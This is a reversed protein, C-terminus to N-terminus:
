MTKSIESQLYVHVIFWQGTVIVIVRQKTGSRHNGCEMFIYDGMILVVLHCVAVRAQGTDLIDYSLGVNM